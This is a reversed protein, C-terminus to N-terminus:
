NALGVRRITDANLAAMRRPRTTVSYELKTKPESASPNPKLKEDYRSVELPILSQVPRRIRNTKGTGRQYITLEAGRVYGDDGKILKEVKAKKLNMRPVGDEKIIVVDDIKLLCEKNSKRLQYRHYERLNNIYEDYFRRLYHKTVIQVHRVRSTLEKASVNDDIENATVYRSNINRGFMIHFPTLAEQYNDDNVYTLPRSNIANEVETLVTNLEEFNVTAKGLVKKISDKVVKILREYFGGWWPSKELIFEWSIDNKKLFDNIVSSKFSTFNDSIFLQPLGRRSIFRRLAMILSQAGLNTTLELHVGRTTACTLLLVYCKNISQSDYLNRVYIPGAYDLGVNEFPYTCKVRFDPLKATPPPILTRGQVLKCIVCNRLVSKVIQRGRILWFKNRVRVLTSEVGLHCTDQHFKLIVLKTFHSDNRLLLPFKVNFDISNVGRLRTKARILGNDIFLNLSTVLKNYHPLRKIFSQEYKIWINQANTIEDMTLEETVILKNKVRSKLNNVFRLVFGTVNLLRTLSSFKECDILSGVGLVVESDVKLVNSSM